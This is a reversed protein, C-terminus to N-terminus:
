ECISKVRRLSPFVLSSRVASVFVELLIAEERGEPAVVRRMAMEVFGGKLASKSSASSSYDYLLYGSLLERGEPVVARRLATKGSGGKLAFKLSAGVLLIRIESTATSLIFYEFLNDRAPGRGGKKPIRRTRKM